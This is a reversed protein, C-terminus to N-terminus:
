AKKSFGLIAWFLVVLVAIPIAVYAALPLLSLLFQLAASGDWAYQGSPVAYYGALEATGWVMILVAVPLLLTLPYLAAARGRSLTGRRVRVLLVAFWAITLGVAAIPAGYFVGIKIALWMAAVQVSHSLMATRARLFLRTAGIEPFKVLVQAKDYIEQVTRVAAQPNDAAIYEFIDELWRQAEDTWAIAAM